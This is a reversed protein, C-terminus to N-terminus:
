SSTKIRRRIKRSWGFAAAAGVLPLPAPTQASLYTEFSLNLTIFGKDNLGSIETPAYEPNTAEFDVLMDQITGQATYASTGLKFGKILIDVDAPPVMMPSLENWTTAVVYDVDKDLKPGDALDYWCFYGVAQCNETTLFNQSWVLQPSSPVSSWIGVSHDDVSQQNNPRFVGLRVLKRDFDTTFHYGLVYPGNDFKDVNPAKNFGIAPGTEPLAPPSGNGAKAAPVQTLTLLSAAGLVGLVSKKLSRAVGLAVFRDSTGM